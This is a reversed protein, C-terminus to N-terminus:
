SEKKISILAKLTGKMEAIDKQQDLMIKQMGEIVRDLQIIKEKVVAVGSLRDLVETLVSM